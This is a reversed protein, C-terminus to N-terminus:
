LALGRVCGGGGAFVVSVHAEYMLSLHSILSAAALHCEGENAKLYGEWQNSTLFVLLHPPPTHDGPVSSMPEHTDIAM